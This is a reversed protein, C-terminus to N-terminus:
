APVVRESENGMFQNYRFCELVGNINVLFIHRYFEAITGKRVEKLVAKEGTNIVYKEIKVAQGKKMHSLATRRLSEPSRGVPVGLAYADQMMEKNRLSMGMKSKM